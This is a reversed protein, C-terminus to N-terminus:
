NAYILMKPPTLFITKAAMKFHFLMKKEFKIGAIYIYKHEGVKLLM